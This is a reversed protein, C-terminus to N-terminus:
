DRWYTKVVGDKIEFYVRKHETKKDHLDLVPWISFNSDIKKTYEYKLVETGDALTRNSSPEGLTALVWAKTAQDPKVQRLTKNSVAPGCRGYDIDTRGSICGAALFAILLSFIGCIIATRTKQRRLANM